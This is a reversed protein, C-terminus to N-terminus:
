CGRSAALGLDKRLAHPPSMFLTHGILIHEAEGEGVASGAAHLFADVSLDAVAVDSLEVDAVDMPETGLEKVVVGEDLCAGGDDVVLISQADKGTIQVLLFVLHLLIISVATAILLNDLERMEHILYRVAVRFREAQMGVTERRVIHFDHAPDTLYLSSREIRRRHDIDVLVGIIVGIGHLCFGIVVGKLLESQAHQTLHAIGMGEIGILSLVM